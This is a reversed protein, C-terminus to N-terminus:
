RNQNLLYKKQKDLSSVLGSGVAGAVAGVKVSTIVAAAAASSLGVTSTLVGTVAVGVAAFPATGAAVAVGLAVAGVIALGGAVQSLSPWLGYLDIYNIPNNLAYVYPSQWAQMLGMPEKQLFTGTAPDYHRFKFRVLGTESDYPNGTFGHNFQKASQVPKGYSFYSRQETMEGRLNSTFITSGVHDGHSFLAGNADVHMLPQGLPELFWSSVQKKLNQDLTLIPNDGDYLFQNEHDDSREALRNGFPGYYFRKIRGDPMTVGILRNFDDYAYRFFGKETQSQVRNGNLDHTHTEKGYVTVENATNHKISVAGHAGEHRIRNGMGDYAFREAMGDPYRVQVLRSLRDYSFEHTRGKDDRMSQILGAPDYRYTTEQLVQDDGDKFVLSELYGRQNYLYHAAIKNPYELRTRDVSRMTPLSFFM